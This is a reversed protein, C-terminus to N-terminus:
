SIRTGNKVVWGREAAVVRASAYDRHLAAHWEKRLVEELQADTCQRCYQVVDQDIENAV